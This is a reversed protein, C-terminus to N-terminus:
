KKKEGYEKDEENWNILWINLQWGFFWDPNPPIRLIWDKAKSFGAKSKKKRGM